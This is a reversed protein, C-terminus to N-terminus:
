RCAQRENPDGAPAVAPAWAEDWTDGRVVQQVAKKDVGYKRAMGRISMTGSRHAARIERVKAWTLKALGGREGRAIREPYLRTNHRDGRAQRGKAVMDASNDAPTGLFLHVPNCCRRNDCRHCVFMGAPIPGCFWQYALRHAPLEKRRFCIRGYGRKSLQGQWEWCAGVKAVKSLLREELNAM